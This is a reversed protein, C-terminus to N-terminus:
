HARSDGPTPQSTWTDWIPPIQPTRRAGKEREFFGKFPRDEEGQESADQNVFTPQASFLRSLLMAQEAGAVKAQSEFIDDPALAQPSMDGTIKLFQPYDVFRVLLGVNLATAIDLLTQVSLRGYETDELRSISSQKKGTVGAFQSQTLNVKERLARIQYAIGSRVHTELYGDRYDKSLFKRLKQGILASLSISVM